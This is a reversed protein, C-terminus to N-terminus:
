YPRTPESIHILSLAERVALEVETIGSEVTNRFEFMAKRLRFQQQEVLAKAARNGLPYEFSLGISYGPEGEEFWQQKAGWIDGDDQLGALYSSLILDLKPLVEQKSVGLRVSQARIERIAEAIDPRTMLGVTVTEPTSYVMNDCLPEDAPIRDRICM